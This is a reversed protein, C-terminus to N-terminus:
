GILTTAMNHKQECLYDFITSLFQNTGCLKLINTIFAFPDFNLYKYTGIQSLLQKGIAPKIPSTGTM